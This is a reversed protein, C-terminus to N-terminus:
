KGGEVKAIAIENGAIVGCLYDRATPAQGADILKLAKKLANVGTTLQGHMIPAAAILHANANAEEGDPECYTSCQAVVFVPWQPSSVFGDKNPIIVRSKRAEWEGKTYNM